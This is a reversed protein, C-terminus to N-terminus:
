TLFAAQCCAGPLVARGNIVAAPKANLVFKSDSGVEIRRCIVSKFPFVNFGGEHDAGDKRFFPHSKESIKQRFV